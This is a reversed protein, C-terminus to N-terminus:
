LLYHMESTWNVPLRLHVPKEGTEDTEKALALPCLISFITKLINLIPRSFILFITLYLFLM